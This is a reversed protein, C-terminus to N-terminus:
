RGGVGEQADLSLLDNLGHKPVPLIYWLSAVCGICEHLSLFVFGCM